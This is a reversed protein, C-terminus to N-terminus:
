KFKDQKIKKNVQRMIETNIDGKVMVASPQCRSELDTTESDVKHNQAARAFYQIGSKTLLPLDLHTTTM